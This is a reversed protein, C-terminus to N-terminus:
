TALAPLTVCVLCGQGPSSVVDITGRVVEVQGKLSFLGPMGTTYSSQWSAADWGVGQDRVQLEIVGDTERLSMEAERVQAHRAVNGLLERACRYLLQRRPMPLPDIRGSSHFSVHLNDHSQSREILNQLASVLGLDKLGPPHLEALLRRTSKHADLALQRCTELRDALTRDLQPLRLAGRISLSLATLTQGVGDHLLIGAALQGADEATYLRQSNELLRTQLQRYDHRTMTILLAASLLMILFIQLGLTKTASTGAPTAFEGFGRAHLLAAGIALAACAVFSVRPRFRLSIWIVPPFLLYNVSGNAPSTASLFVYATVVLLTLFALLLEWQPGDSRGAHGRANFDLALALPAIALAGLLPAALATQITIWHDLALRGIIETRLVAGGAVAVFVIFVGRLILETAPPHRQRMWIRFLSGGLFAESTTTLALLADAMISHDAGWVGGAIFRSTVFEAITAAPLLWAWTGVASSCIAAGLLGAPLWLVPEVAGAPTTAAGLWVCLAHLPAYALALRPGSQLLLEALRPTRTDM